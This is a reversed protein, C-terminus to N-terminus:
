ISSSRGLFFAALTLAGIALGSLFSRGHILSDFRALFERTHAAVAAGWTRNRRERQLLKAHNRGFVNTSLGGRNDDDERSSRRAGRLRGLFAAAARRLRVWPNRSADAGDPGGEIRIGDLLRSVDEEGASSRRRRGGRGGMLDALEDDSEGNDPSGTGRNARSEAAGTGGHTERHQVDDDDDAVDNGHGGGDDNERGGAGPDNRATLKSTRILRRRPPDPRRVGRPGGMRVDGDIDGSGPGCLDPFM